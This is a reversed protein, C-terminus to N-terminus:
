KQPPHCGGIKEIALYLDKWGTGTYSLVLFSTTRFTHRWSALSFHKFGGKLDQFACRTRWKQLWPQETEDAPM